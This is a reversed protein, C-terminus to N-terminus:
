ITLVLSNCVICIYGEKSTISFKIKEHRKLFGNIFKHESESYDFMWCLEEFIGLPSSCIAFFCQYIYVIYEVSYFFCFVEFLVLQYDTICFLQLLFYFFLKLHLYIKCKQKSIGAKIQLTWSVWFQDIEEM